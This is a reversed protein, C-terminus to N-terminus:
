VHLYILLYEEKHHFLVDKLFVIFIINVNIHHLFKFLTVDEDVTYVIEYELSVFTVTKVNM